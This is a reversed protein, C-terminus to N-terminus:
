VSNTKYPTKPPIYKTFDSCIQRDCIILIYTNNKSFPTSITKKEIYCLQIMHPTTILKNFKMSLEGGVFKSPRTKWKIHIPHYRHHYGYVRNDLPKYELDLSEKFKDSYPSRTLIKVIKNPNYDIHYPYTCTINDGDSLTFIETRWYRFVGNVTSNFYSLDGGNDM